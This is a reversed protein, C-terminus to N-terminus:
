AATHAVRRRLDPAYHRSLLGLLVEQRRWMRSAQRGRGEPHDYGLVHLVGHVVLRATEERAGTGHDAANRRAVEPAIYIDGLVPAGSREPALRFSIVDTPGDHGLHRANMRAIKRTSVFTISLRTMPAHEARLVARAIEGIRQRSLPIRVADAAVAIEHRM